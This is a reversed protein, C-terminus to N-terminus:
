YCHMIANPSLSQYFNKKIGTTKGFRSRTRRTLDGTKKVTFTWEPGYKLDAPPKTQNVGALSTNAMSMAFVFASFFMLKAVSMIFDGVTVVDRALTIM